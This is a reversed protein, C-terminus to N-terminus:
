KFFFFFIFNVMPDKFEFPPYGVLIEWFTIGLSYMDTRYDVFRNTRGTQEPSLYALTGHLGMHTLQQNEQGSIEALNFDIIQIQPGDDTKKCIINDPNIDKHTVSADHIARLGECLQIAISLFDELSLSPLPSTPSFLMRDRKHHGFVYERLPVGGFDKLLLILKREDNYVLDIPRIIRHLNLSQKSNECSNSDSSRRRSDRISLINNNNNNNIDIDSTLGHITQLIDFESRLREDGQEEGGLVYSKCIVTKTPDQVDRARHIALSNRSNVYLLKYDTYSQLNPTPLSNNFEDDPSDAKLPLEKLDISPRPDM